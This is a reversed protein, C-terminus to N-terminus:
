VAKRNRNITRADQEFAYKVCREQKSQNDLHRPWKCVYAPKRDQSITRTDQEIAYEVCSEQRYQKRCAAKNHSRVFPLYGLAKHAALIKGPGNHYKYKGLTLSLSSDSHWSAHRSLRNENQTQEYRCHCERLNWAGGRKKGLFIVVRASWLRKPKTEREVSWMSVVTALPKALNEQRSNTDTSSNPQFQEPNQENCNTVIVRTWIRAWAGERERCLSM